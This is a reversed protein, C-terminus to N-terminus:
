SSTRCSSPNLLGDKEVEEWSFVLKAGITPATYHEAGLCLKEEVFAPTTKFDGHPFGGVVLALKKGKKKEFFDILSVASGEEWLLV